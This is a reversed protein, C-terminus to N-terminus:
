LIPTGSPQCHPPQKSAQATMFREQSPPKFLLFIEEEEQLRFTLYILTDTHKGGHSTYICIGERQTKVHDKESSIYTCAM